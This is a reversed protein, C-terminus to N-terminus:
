ESLLQKFKKVSFGNMIEDGVRLVPVAKYGTMALEKRGKPTKVDCLRFPIKQEELYKKAVVCHPCNSMSYLVVRKM